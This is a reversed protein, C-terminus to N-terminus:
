SFHSYEIHAQPVRLVWWSPSTLYKRLVVTIVRFLCSDIVKSRYEAFCLLWFIRQLKWKQSNLAKNAEHQSIFLLTTHNLHNEKTKNHNLHNEKTKNFCAVISTVKWRLSMSEKLFIFCVEELHNNLWMKCSLELNQTRHRNPSSKDVISESKMRFSWSKLRLVLRLYNQLLSYLKDQRSVQVILKCSPVDINWTFSLTEVRVQGPDCCSFKCSKAIGALIDSIRNKKATINCLWQSASVIVKCAFTSYSVSSTWEFLLIM